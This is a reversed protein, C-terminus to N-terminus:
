QHTGKKKVSYRWTVWSDTFTQSQSNVNSPHVYNTSAKSTKFNDHTPYATLHRSCCVIKKKKKKIIVLIFFPYSFFNLTNDIACDPYLSNIVQPGNWLHYMLEYDLDQM